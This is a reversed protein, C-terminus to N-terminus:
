EMMADVLSSAFLWHMERKPHNIYNSLLETTDVGLENM